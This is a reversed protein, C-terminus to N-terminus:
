RVVKKTDEAKADELIWETKWRAIAMVYAGHMLFSLERLSFYKGEIDIWYKDRLELVRKLDEDNVAGNETAEICEHISKM